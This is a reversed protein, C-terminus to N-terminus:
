FGYGSRWREAIAVKLEPSFDSAPFLEVESVYYAECRGHVLLDVRLFDTRAHQAVREAIEVMKAYCPAVCFPPCPMKSTLVQGNRAIEMVAGASFPTNEAVVVLGWTTFFKYEDVRLGGHPDVALILDEVIVGPRVAVLARCEWDLATKQVFQDVAAQIDEIHAVPNPHGWAQQLLNVDNQVVFVNQSESMHSPKVVFSKRGRLHHLINFDSNSLHISPTAAVGAGPLLEKRLRIKDEFLGLDSSELRQRLTMLEEYTTARDIHASIDLSPRVRYFGVAASRGGRPVISVVEAAIHTVRLDLPVTPLPTDFTCLGAECGKAGICMTDLAAEGRPLPILADLDVVAGSFVGWGALDDPQVPQPAQLHVTTKGTPAHILRPGSSWLVKYTRGKYGQKWGVLIPRILMLEMWAYGRARPVELALHFRTVNGFAGIRRTSLCQITPAEGPQAATQGSAYAMVYDLKTRLESATHDAQTLQRQLARCIHPYAPITDQQRCAKRHQMELFELVLHFLVQTEPFDAPNLESPSTFAAVASVFLFNVRGFRPLGMTYTLRLIDPRDFDEAPILHETFGSLSGFVDLATPRTLFTSLMRKKGISVSANLEPLPNFVLLRPTASSDRRLASVAETVIEHLGIHQAHGYEGHRNHTIVYDWPQRTLAEQIRSHIGLGGGGESFLRCTAGDCDLYDWFEEVIEAALGLARARYMANKFETQRPSVLGTAVIVHWHVKSCGPRLSAARGLLAEGAFLSEDDPHAVILLATACTGAAEGACTCTSCLSVAVAASVLRWRDRWWGRRAATM